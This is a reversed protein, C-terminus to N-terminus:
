RVGRDAFCESTVNDLFRKSSIVRLLDALMRCGCQCGWKTATPVVM